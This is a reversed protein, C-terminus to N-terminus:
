PEFFNLVYRFSGRGQLKVLFYSNESANKLHKSLLASFLFINQARIIASLPLKEMANSTWYSVLLKSKIRKFSNKLLFSYFLYQILFIMKAAVYLPNVLINCNTGNPGLKSLTTLMRTKARGFTAPPDALFPPPPARLGGM